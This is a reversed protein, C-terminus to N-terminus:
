YTKASEPPPPRDGQELGNRLVRAPPHRDALAAARQYAELLWQESRSALWLAYLTERFDNEAIRALDTPKLPLEGTAVTEIEVTKANTKDSITM